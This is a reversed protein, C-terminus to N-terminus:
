ARTINMLNNIYKYFCWFALCFLTLLLFSALMITASYGFDLYRMASLYAYLGLSETTGAPGGGTM